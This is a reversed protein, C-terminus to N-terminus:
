FISVQVTGTTIGSADLTAVTADGIEYGARVKVVKLGDPNRLDTPAFDVVYGNDLTVTASGAADASFYCVFHVEASHHLNPVTKAVGDVLLTEEDVWTAYRPFMGTSRAGM